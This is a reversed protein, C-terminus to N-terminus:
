AGVRAHYEAIIDRDPIVIGHVGPRYNKAWAGNKWHTMAVLEGPSKMLLFKGVDDLTEAEKTGDLNQCGFFVDPIPQDGLFKVKHYIDPEVPGYDWAEFRGDILRSGDGSGMYIMHSLYLIKQLALNTVRWNSRECVRRAASYPNVPM